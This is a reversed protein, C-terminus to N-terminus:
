AREIVIKKAGEYIMKEAIKSLGQLNETISAFLNVAKPGRPGQPRSDRAYTIGIEAAERRGYPTGRFYYAPRYYYFIDGPAPIYGLLNEPELIRPPDIHILLQPGSWIDHICAAQLPLLDWIANSTRPAEEEMLDGYATTKEKLFKISIRKSM